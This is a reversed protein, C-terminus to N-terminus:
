ALTSIFYLPVVAYELVVVCTLKYPEIFICSGIPLSLLLVLTFGGFALVHMVMAKTNIEELV